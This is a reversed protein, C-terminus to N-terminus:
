EESEYWEIQHGDSSTTIDVVPRRAKNMLTGVVSSIITEAVPEQGADEVDHEEWIKYRYGFLPAEPTVSKRLRVEVTSQPYSGVIELQDLEYGSLRLYTSIASRVQAAIESELQISL